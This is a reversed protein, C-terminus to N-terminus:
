IQLYQPMNEEHLNSIRSEISRDLRVSRGVAWGGTWVTCATRDSRGVVDLGRDIRSSQIRNGNMSKNVNLVLCFAYFIWCDRLPINRFVPCYPMLCACQKNFMHLSQFNFKENQGLRMGCEWCMLVLCQDSWIAWCWFWRSITTELSPHM